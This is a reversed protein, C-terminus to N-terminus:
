CYGEAMRLRHESADAEDEYEVRQGESGYRVVPKAEEREINEVDYGEAYLEAVRAAVRRATLHSESNYQIGDPFKRYTIKFTTM